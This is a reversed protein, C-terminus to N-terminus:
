DLVVKVITRQYNVLKGTSVGGTANNLPGAEIHVFYEIPDLQKFILFGNANTKGTRLTQIGQEYHTKSAYLQVLAGPIPKQQINTVKFVVVSESPIPQQFSLLILVAAFQFIRIM